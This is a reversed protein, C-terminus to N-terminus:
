KIYRLEKSQQWTGAYQGHLMSSQAAKDQIGELHRNPRKQEPLRRRFELVEKDASSEDETRSELGHPAKISRQPKPPPDAWGFDTGNPAKVRDTHHTGLTKAKVSAM